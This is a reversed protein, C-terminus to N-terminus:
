RRAKKGFYYSETAFDIDESISKNWSMMKIRGPIRMIMEHIKGLTIPGSIRYGLIPHAHENKTSWLRLLHTAKYYRESGVCGSSLSRFGLREFNRELYSPSYGASYYDPSGHAMNSTPCNIWVYGDIDVLSSILNFAVDLNWIHELVQSCVVLDFNEKLVESSNLDFYIWPSEEGYNDIGMYTIKSNPFRKKLLEVEPDKSSGGLIVITLELANLADLASELKELVIWRM